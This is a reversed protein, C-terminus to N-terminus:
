INCGQVQENKSTKGFAFKDWRDKFNKIDNPKVGMGTWTIGEWTPVNEESISFGPTRGYKDHVLCTWDEVTLIYFDPLDNKIRILFFLLFWFPTEMYAKLQLGNV